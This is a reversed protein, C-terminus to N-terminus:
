SKNYKTYLKMIFIHLLFPSRHMTVKQYNQM